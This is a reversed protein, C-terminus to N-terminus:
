RTVLDSINTDIRLAGAKELRGDPSIRYATLTGGKFAKVM